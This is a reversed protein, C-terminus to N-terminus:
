GAPAAAELTAEIKNLTTQNLASFEVAFRNMDPVVRVVKGKVTVKQLCCPDYLLLQIVRGPAAQALEPCNAYDINVGTCSLDVVDVLDSMTCGELRVQAMVAIRGRRRGTDRRTLVGSPEGIDPLTDNVLYKHRGKSNM